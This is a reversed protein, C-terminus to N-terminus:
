RGVGITIDGAGPDVADLVGAPIRFARGPAAPWPLRRSAVPAGQQSVTVVPHRLLEATWAILRDRAPAPAEARLLSPSVWRLPPAAVIRVAPRLPAPDALWSAVQPAVQRGDLAAVDATDVPHILNGAAFVGPRSTRLAADVTPGLSAPDIALGASRALENDPIWDGTFVVTDCALTRRAGTDLDHLEVAEVRGSGIIGALRTRTAVRTRLALRGALNFAAYSEPTSFESTMLVTRCGADRLTMVASWSVLEAGVVVARTGPVGHRLHVLNQLQGSTFVGQPRDGPVLRASRPRERAGTALVIARAAILFRGEPTTLEAIPPSAADADADPDGGTWGTVMAGTRIRVGARAASVVLRRAYAPGGLFRHLDRIGYGPHNSHRPIGGAVQERDVVLVEGRVLGALETAATLGAPGGGIVLVDPTLTRPTV